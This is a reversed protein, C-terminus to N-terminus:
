PCEMRAAETEVRVAATPAAPETPQIDARTTLRDGDVKYEYKRTSGILTTRYSSGAMTALYVNPREIRYRYISTVTGRASMCTSDFQDEKFQLTCRGSSDEMKSGDKLFQVITVARWCGLLSPDPAAAHSWPAVLALALVFSHAFSKM